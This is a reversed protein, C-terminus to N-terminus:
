GLVEQTAQFALGNVVTEFWSRHKGRYYHAYAGAAGTVVWHNPEDETIILEAPQAYGRPRLVLSEKLDEM